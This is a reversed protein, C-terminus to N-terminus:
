DFLDQNVFFNFTNNDMTGTQYGEFKLRISDVDMDVDTKILNLFANQCFNIGDGAVCGDFTALSFDYTFTNRIISFNGDTDRIIDLCSTAVFMRSGDDTFFLQAFSPENQCELFSSNIDGINIANIETQTFSGENLSGNVAQFSISVKEMEQQVPEFECVLDEFNSSNEQTLGLNLSAFGVMIGLIILVKKM